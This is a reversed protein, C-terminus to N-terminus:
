PQHTGTHKHEDTQRNETNDLIHASSTEPPFTDTKSNQKERQRSMHAKICVLNDPSALTGKPQRQAINHAGSHFHILLFPDFLSITSAM